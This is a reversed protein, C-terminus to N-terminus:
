PDRGNDSSFIISPTARRLGLEDLLAVIAGVHEDLDSIMAAYGPGRGPTPSTAMRTASTHREKDWSRRTATLGTSRLRSCPSTPSSRVRLYLFFPRDRYGESPHLSEHRTRLMLDPAYENGYFSDFYIEEACRGHVKPAGQVPRTTTPWCSQKEDNCGCTRRTTAIRRGSATTATSSTSVTPMPTAPRAWPGLGWKGIAATAYGAERLVTGITVDDARIPWQGEPRVPKNNRITAHGLHRGTLLVCRSPACVPAGCYHRLFRMGDSALRDIHPTKIKEQGYCGLEGYGLDDALIYIINPARGAAAGAAAGSATRPVSDCATAALVLLAWLVGGVRLARSVFRLQLDPM